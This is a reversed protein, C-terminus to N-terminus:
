KMREYMVFGAAPVTLQVAMGNRPEVTVTLPTQSMDTSYTCCLTDGAQNLEGDITVWATHPQYYDTNIALLIEEDNFLRSWPVVSRLDGNIMTPLGFHEGDGSIPRLYQQGRCLVKSKKRIALIQALQQYIPNDEDFFHRGTTRFAGFPGGFMSERIYRDNSGHGDFAQETGYYICPIGLTTANLALANFLVKDADHDACFRAKWEQQNVKDHDDIMTVIKDRFWIHAEEGVLLSNRFLDFYSTPNRYGKILYEMQDPIEDIALAADLGTEKLTNYARERGGTIEGILYFNEKGISQAFEKIDSVFFRTAGPDMHKVTDIRFGDVDADAIWFQYAKGLNKLAASPQYHDPDGQGHHIDKLSFFDGELYEPFNDWNRIYGKCSFTGPQQLEAPWIAGDPWADPHATLDIPGFRLTPEGSADLFGKVPYPVGTWYPEQSDYALINGSHNLIIDLIVYIGHQHATDVLRRLDERTGFRPDVDLFNQIGYGHYSEERQIQRFIPSIWIATVGMRKLYGIKTILGKITGGCFKGGADRWHAADESSRLASDKDAPQYRPTKGASVLKGDNDYYKDENGDSFRDLLLFYLVQDEWAAPSPFYRARSAALARLDLDALCQEVM